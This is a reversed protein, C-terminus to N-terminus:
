KKLVKKSDYEARDKADLVTFEVIIDKKMEPSAFNLQILGEKRLAGKLM